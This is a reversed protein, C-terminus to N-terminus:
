FELWYHELRYLMKEESMLSIGDRWIRYNVLLVAVTFTIDFLFEHLTFHGLFLKFRNRFLGISRENLMCHRRTARNTHDRRKWQRLQDSKYSFLVNNGKRCFGKDFILFQSGLFYSSPLRYTMSTIYLTCDHYCRVFSIDLRIFVGFIDTWVLLGFFHLNHHSDCQRM